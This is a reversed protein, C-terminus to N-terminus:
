NTTNNFCSTIPSIDDYVTNKVNNVYNLVLKEMQIAYFFLITTIAVICGFIIALFLLPLLYIKTTYIITIITFLFPLFLFTSFLIVYLIYKNKIDNGLNKSINIFYNEDNQINKTVTSAAGAVCTLETLSM